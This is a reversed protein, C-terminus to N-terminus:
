DDVLELDLVDGDQSVSGLWAVVNRISPEGPFPGDIGALPTDSALLAAIGQRALRRAAAVGGAGVVEFVVHAPYSFSFVSGEGHATPPQNGTFGLWARALRAAPSGDPLAAAQRAPDAELTQAARLLAEPEDRALAALLDAYATRLQTEPLTTDPHKIM